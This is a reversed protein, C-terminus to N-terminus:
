LLWCVLTLLTHKHIGLKPSVTHRTTLLTM